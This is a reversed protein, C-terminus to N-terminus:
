NVAALMETVRGELEAALTVAVANTSDKINKHVIVRIADVHADILTLLSAGQKGDLLRCLSSAVRAALPYGFTLAQGKLDHGARYLDGQADANPNKAFGDRCQGLKQVDANVWGTFESKLDEVAQEARKIAAMDLGAGGGGLKAKLVNPPMFIEIPRKDPM